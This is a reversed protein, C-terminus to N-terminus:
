QNSKERHKAGPDYYRGYAMAVKKIKKNLSAVSLTEYNFRKNKEEEFKRQQDKNTQKNPYKDLLESIIKDRIDENIEEAVEATLEHHWRTDGNKWKENIINIAREYQKDLKSWGKKRNISSFKKQIIEGLEKRFFLESIQMFDLTVLNTFFLFLPVIEDCEEELFNYVLCLKAVTLLFSNQNESVLKTIKEDDKYVCSTVRFLTTYFYLLVNIKAFENFKSKIWNKDIIIDRMFDDPGFDISKIMKLLSNLQRQTNSIEKLKNYSREPISNGLMCKIVKFVEGYDISDFFVQLSKELKPRDEGKVKLFVDFITSFPEQKLSDYLHNFYEGLCNYILQKFEDLTEPDPCNKFFGDAIRCFLIKKTFMENFENKIDQFVEKDFKNM